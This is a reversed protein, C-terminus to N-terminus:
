STSSLRPHLFASCEDLSNVWLLSMYENPYRDTRAGVLPWFMAQVLFSTDNITIWHALYNQIELLYMLLTGNFAIFVSPFTTHWFVDKCSIDRKKLSIMNLPKLELCWLALACCPCSSFYGHKSSEGRAGWSCWFLNNCWRCGEWVLWM